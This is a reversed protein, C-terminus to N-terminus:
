RSIPASRATSSAVPLTTVLAPQWGAKAKIVRGGAVVEVSMPAGDGIRRFFDGNVGVLAKSNAVLNGLVTRVTVHSPLIPMRRVAHAIDATAVYLPGLGAKTYRPAGHYRAPFVCAGRPRRRLSQAVLRM